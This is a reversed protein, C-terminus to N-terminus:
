FEEDSEFERILTWECFEGTSNPSGDEDYNTEYDIDELEKNRFREHERGFDNLSSFNEIFDPNESILKSVYEAFEDNDFDFVHEGNEDKYDRSDLSVGFFGGDFFCSSDTYFYRTEEDKICQTMITNEVHNREFFVRVLM